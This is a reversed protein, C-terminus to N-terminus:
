TAFANINPIYGKTFFGLGKLYASKRSLCIYHLVVVSTIFQCWLRAVLFRNKDLKQFLSELPFLLLVCRM